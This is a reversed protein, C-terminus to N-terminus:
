PEVDLQGTVFGAEEPVHLDGGREEIGRFSMWILRM